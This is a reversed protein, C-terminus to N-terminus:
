IHILSLSYGSGGYYSSSQSMRRASEDRTKAALRERAVQDERMSETIQQLRASPDSSRRTAEEAARREAFSKAFNVAEKSEIVEEKSSRATPKERIVTTGPNVKIIGKTQMARSAALAAEAREVTGIPTAAREFLDVAKASQGATVAKKGYDDPSTGYVPAPTETPETPPPPPKYTVWSDDYEMNNILDFMDREDEVSSQFPPLGAAALPKLRRGVSGCPRQGPPGAGPGVRRASPRPAAGLLRPDARAHSGVATPRTAAAITTSASM